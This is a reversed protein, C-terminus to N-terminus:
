VVIMLHLRCKLRYSDYALGLVLAQRPQPLPSRGPARDSLKRKAASIVSAVLARQHSLAYPFRRRMPARMGHMPWTAKGRTAPIASRAPRTPRICRHHRESDCAAEAVSAGVAVVASAEAAVPRVTASDNTPGQRARPALIARRPVDVAM